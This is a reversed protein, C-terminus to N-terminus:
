HEITQTVSFAGRIEGVQYGTALDNPYFKNLKESLSKDMTNPDGHCALCLGQTPIARMLRLQTSDNSKIQEIHILDTAPTGAALQQEFSLLVQKEWADPKNNPNRLKLSTRKISINNESYSNINDTIEPAKIKCTEVAAVPGGAQMSSSLEKKLNSALLKIQASAQQQFKENDINAQNDTNDACAILTISTILFFLLIKM